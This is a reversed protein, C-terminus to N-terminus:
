WLCLGHRLFSGIALAADALAFIATPLPAVGCAESETGVGVGRLPHLAGGGVGDAADDTLCHLWFFVHSPRIISDTGRM